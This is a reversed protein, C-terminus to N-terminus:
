VPFYLLFFFAWTESMSPRVVVVRSGDKMENIEKLQENQNIQNMQINEQSENTENVHNSTISKLIFSMTQKIKTKKENSLSKEGYLCFIMARYIGTKGCGNEGALVVNDMLQGNVDTFDFETNGFFPNNILKIKKIKM